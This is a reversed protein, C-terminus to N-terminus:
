AQSLMLQLLLEMSVKAETIGHARALHDRLAKLRRQRYRNNFALEPIQTQLSVRTVAQGKPFLLSTASNPEKCEPCTLV